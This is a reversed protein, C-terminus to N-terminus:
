AEKFPMQLVNQLLYKTSPIPYPLGASLTMTYIRLQFYKPNPKNKIKTCNEYLVYLFHREDPHVNARSKEWSSTKVSLMNKASKKLFSAEHQHVRQPLIKRIAHKKHIKLHELPFSFWGIAVKVEGGTSIFNHNFLWSSM